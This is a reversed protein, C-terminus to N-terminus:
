FHKDASEMPFDDSRFPAVPHGAANNLNMDFEGNWGFRVAIPEPVKESKVEVVVDGVVKAEAPHFVKDAGCIQFGSLPAEENSPMLKEGVQSFTVRVVNGQTAISQFLAGGAVAKPKDESEPDAYVKEMALGALRQGVAQKNRPHIDELDGVDTIVAMATGSVQRATHLQADWLEQLAFEGAGEYKYPALQVFLFPLQPNNFRTRWDKILTPFLTRYQHGRGVNAEGQYWIVGKVPFQTLPSIMSNFIHGPHDPSSVEESEKWHDLLPKLSEQQGIAEASTWGECRTGGWSVDVLGVPVDKLDKSLSKAFFYGVASFDAVSDPSCVAWSKVVGFDDLPKPSASEGVQFLRINSFNKAQEIETDPNLAKSVPWEMNSQGSCIWVDGVMINSVGITLESGVESVELEFPGGAKGIELNSSWRGKADAKAKYEKEAFRIVMEAAPTATGWIPVTSERQLVMHDSFIKALTLDAMASDACAALLAVFVFASACSTAFSRVFRKCTLKMCTKITLLPHV